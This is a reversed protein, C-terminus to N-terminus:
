DIRGQGKVNFLESIHFLGAYRGLLVFLFRIDALSASATNYSPAIKVVTDLALPQKPQVPRSLKRKAGEAAAVVTPHQTPSELGAVKLRNFEM